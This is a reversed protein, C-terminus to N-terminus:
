TMQQNCKSIRGNLISRLKDIGYRYRSKATNPSIQRAKAIAQFTMSGQMHLLLVERQEFPLEALAGSLTELQENCVLSELPGEVTDHVDRGRNSPLIGEVSRPRSPRSVNAIAPGADPNGVRLRVREAKNWNRAHNATCTLLYSKLSGTLRFGDLHHVFSLFVDHVVDEAATKDNLLGMALLLLDAKYKEYIRTLAERSGRQCKFVLLKDEM